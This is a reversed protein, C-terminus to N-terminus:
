NGASREKDPGQGQAGAIVSLHLALFNVETEPLEAGLESSARGVIRRAEEVVGPVEALEEAVDEEGEWEEIPEGARVRELALLLHSVLMGANEEKLVFGWERAARELERTAFTATEESVQGTQQFVEVRKRLAGDMAAETGPSWPATSFPANCTM